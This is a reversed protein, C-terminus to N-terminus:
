KHEKGFIRAFLHEIRSATRVDALAPMTCLHLYQASQTLPKQGSKLSSQLVEVQLQLRERAFEPGSDVGTAIELRLIDHLLQGRNQELVRVYAERGGPAAANLAAHFRAELAKEYEPSLPAMSDWRTTWQGPDIEKGQALASELAQCLRLKERLANAQALGANRKAIDAHHQVLAVQQVLAVAAHYRKEVRAENARPVPGIAHWEAAADRLLKGAPGPEIGEAAAELRASIAEKAEQHKRREADAAHAGEKRGAFVADCATRFRQWLAQETKRELPLAKAHEQWREQLARLADLAHRDHPNIASAQEILEERGAAETKRREELPGQLV